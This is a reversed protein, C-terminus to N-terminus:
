AHETSSSSVPGWGVEPPGAGVDGAGFPVKPGGPYMGQGLSLGEPHALFGLGHSFAEAEPKALASWAFWVEEQIGRCKTPPSHRPKNFGRCGHTGFKKHPLAPATEVEKALTEPRGCQQSAPSSGSRSLRSRVGSSWFSTASMNTQNFKQTDVGKHRNKVM